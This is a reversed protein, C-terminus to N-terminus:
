HSLDTQAQVAGSNISSQFKAATPADPQLLATFYCHGENSSLILPYRYQFKPNATDGSISIVYNIPATGLMFHGVGVRTVMTGYVEQQVIQYSHNQVQQSHDLLKFIGHSSSSSFEFSLPKQSLAQLNKLVTPCTSDNAVVTQVNLLQYTKTATSAAFATGLLGALCTLAVAKQIMHRM